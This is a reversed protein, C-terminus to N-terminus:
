RAPLSTGTSLSVAKASLEGVPTRLVPGVCARVRRTVQLKRETDHCHMDLSDTVESRRDTCTGFDVIAERDAMASPTDVARTSVHRYEFRGAEASLKGVTHLVRRACARM